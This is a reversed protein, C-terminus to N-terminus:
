SNRFYELDNELGGGEWWNLVYEAGYLKCIRQSLTAIEDRLLRQDDMRQRVANIRRSGIYSM